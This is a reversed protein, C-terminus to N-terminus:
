KVSLVTAVVGPSIHYWCLEEDYADLPLSSSFDGVCPLYPSFNGYFPHSASGGRTLASRIPMTWGRLASRGRPALRILAQDNTLSLTSLASEM